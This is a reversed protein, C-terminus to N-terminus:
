LFTLSVFSPTSPSTNTAPKALCRVGTPTEMGARALPDVTSLLLISSSLIVAMAPFAFPVQGCATSPGFNAAHFLEIFSTLRRPHPPQQRVVVPLPSILNFPRANALMCLFWGSTAASVGTSIRFRHSQDVCRLIARANVVTNCFFVSSLQVSSLQTISLGSNCTSCNTIPKLLTQVLKLKGALMNWTEPIQM